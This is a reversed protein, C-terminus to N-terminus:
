QCDRVREQEHVLMSMSIAVAESRWPVAEERRRQGASTSRDKEDDRELRFGVLTEELRSNKHPHPLKAPQFLIDGCLSFLSLRTRQM